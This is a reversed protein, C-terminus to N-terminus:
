QKLDYNNYREIFEDFSYEEREYSISGWEWKEWNFIVKDIEVTLEDWIYEAHNMLEKWENDSDAFSREFSSKTELWNIFELRNM